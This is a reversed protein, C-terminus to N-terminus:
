HFHPIGDVFISSAQCIIIIIPISIIHIIDGSIISSLHHHRTQHNYLNQHYTYLYTLFFLMLCIDWEPGQSLQLTHAEGIRTQPLISNPDVLTLHIHSSIM